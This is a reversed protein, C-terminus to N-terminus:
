LINNLAIGIGFRTQKHNYDILSEGYGTFLSTYGTFKGWIPFTWNVEASGRGTDIAHRLKLVYEFDGDDYATVFEYNGVYDEINPNDDGSAQLPDTKADEQLRVWPKVSFVWDGKEVVLQAYFRNWSRSLPQSRGNSLHEGGVVIATNTGFPHWGTPTAYFLEPMYNTERFPKSINDSYVQWWSQVTFGFFFKDDEFLLSEKNFPVKFSLQFKAEYEELNRQYDQLDAYQQRNINNTTIMPLMYNRRHPTLVYPDFETVQESQMRKTLAGAEGEVADVEVVEEAPAARLQQECQQRVEAVTINSNTTNMKDLLCQQMDSLEQAHLSAPLIALTPILLRKKM